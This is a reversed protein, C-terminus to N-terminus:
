PDHPKREHHTLVRRIMERDIQSLSVGWLVLTCAFVVRKLVADDIVYVPAVISHIFSETDHELGRAYKELVTLICGDHHVIWHLMLFPSIIAHFVIFTDIGSFPAYIMWAIFLIHIIRIVMSIM